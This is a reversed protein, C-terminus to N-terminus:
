SECMCYSFFFMKMLSDVDELDVDEGIFTSKPSGSPKLPTTTRHLTFVRLMQGQGQLSELRLLMLLVALKALVAPGSVGMRGLDGTM